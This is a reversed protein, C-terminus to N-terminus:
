NKEKAWFSMRTISIKGYSTPKQATFVPERELTQSGWLHPIIEESRGGGGLGTRQPGSSLGSRELGALGRGSYLGCPVGAKGIGAGGPFQQGGPTLILMLASEPRQAPENVSGRGQHFPDPPLPILAQILLNVKGGWGLEGMLSSTILVQNKALYKQHAM